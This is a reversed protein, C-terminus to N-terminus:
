TKSVFLVNVCFISLTTVILTLTNVSIYYPIKNNAQIHAIYVTYNLERSTKKTNGAIPENFQRIYLYATFIHLIMNEPSPSLITSGNVLALLVESKSVHMRAGTKEKTRGGTKKM